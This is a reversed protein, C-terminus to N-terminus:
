NKINRLDNILKDLNDFSNIINDISSNQENISRMVEGVSASTEEASGAIQAISKSIEMSGNEIKTTMEDVKEANSVSEKSNVDINKFINVVKVLSNNSNEASTQILNIESSADHIKEKINGLIDSIQLNSQQSQEALKRVEEAVVSFGRGEEGARAAEIAANLALLNIQESIGNVTGLINEINDAQLNLNHILLVADNVKSSVNALEESLSSIQNNCNDGMNLIDKSLSKMSTAESVVTGIYSTEDDVEKNINSLLNSQTEINASIENFAAAIEDSVRGSDHINSSLDKSFKVLNEISNEIQKVITELLVKSSEVENRQIEVDTRIKETSRSQVCLIVTILIFIFIVISLGLTDHYYLGFMKEGGTFYGYIISSIVIIGTLIISKYYQYLSILVMVMFGILFGNLDHFLYIFLFHVSCLMVSMVYMVKTQIIKKFVIFTIIISEVILVPGIFILSNKNVGSISAFIIFIITIAWMVRAMLINRKRLVLLYDM